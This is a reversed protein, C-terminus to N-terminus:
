TLVEVQAVQGFGDCCRGGPIALLQRAWLGGRGDGERGSGEAGVEEEM